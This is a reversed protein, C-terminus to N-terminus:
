ARVRSLFTEPNPVRLEGSILKPLLGDRMAALIRSEAVMEERRQESNRAVADFAEILGPPPVIAPTMKLGDEPLMNVTTGNAYGSVVDHMRRSNLMACLFAPRFPSGAKITLRFIHHSAIGFEGFLKPVIAAYGILLRDHGQETNAVIVDGPRVVHRPRYDETYFKIGEYKYGGGEYISNLNHLPIGQDGLGDGQYSVGKTVEIHESLPEVAWGEPIFGLTTKVLRNPFLPALNAPLATDEGVAKSRVPDFSVFWSDFLACTIANLTASAQRNLEIKDSLNALISGIAEQEKLPPLQISLSGLRVRSLETQGTSGEGLAEVDPESACLVFGLFRPDVKNPDPRVITVHSDVTAQEPLQTVQAVRGLTGVGTSNVLIDWRRVHREPAVPKRESDTRRASSFDVRHDRVCKQNLVLMGGAEIYAPAAGRNLFATVRQLQTEQWELEM